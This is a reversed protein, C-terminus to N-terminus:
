RVGVPISSNGARFYDRLDRRLRAADSCAIGICGQTGRPPQDPHIRLDTRDTSFNPQLDLSWGSGDCVMGRKTRSRLNTGTYDGPPLPDYAPSGSTASYTGVPNGMVDYYTLAGGQYSLSPTGDPPIFDLGLPDIWNIPDNTVYAYTNTGGKLGIPDTEVYM